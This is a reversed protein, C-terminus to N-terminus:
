DNETEFALDVYVSSVRKYCDVTCIASVEPNSKSTATVLIQTDFVELYLITASLTDDSVSMSVYDNVNKTSESVWEINWDLTKDLVYNPEVSATITVSNDAQNNISSSLKLGHFKYGDIILPNFVPGPTYNFVFLLVILLIALPISAILLVKKKM